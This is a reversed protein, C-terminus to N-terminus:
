RSYQRLIAHLDCSRALWPRLWALACRSPRCRSLEDGGASGFGSAMVKTANPVPEPSPVRGTLAKAKSLRSRGGAVVPVAYGACSALGEVAVVSRSLLEERHRHYGPPIIPPDQRQVLGPARKGHKLIEKGSARPNEPWTHMHGSLVPWTSQHPALQLSPSCLSEGLCTGSSGPM